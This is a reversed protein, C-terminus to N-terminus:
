PQDESINKVSKCQPLWNVGDLGLVRSEVPGTAGVWHSLACSGNELVRHNWGWDILM